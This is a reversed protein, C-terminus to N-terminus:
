DLVLHLFTFNLGLANLKRKIKKFGISRFKNNILVTPYFITSGEAKTLIKKIKKLNSFDVDRNRFSYFNATLFDLYTALDEYIQGVENSKDIPNLKMGLKLEKNLSRTYILFDGMLRTLSNCRFKHWKNLFKDKILDNYKLKIISQASLFSKVQDLDVENGQKNSIERLKIDEAANPKAAKDYCYNCFCTISQSVEDFFPYQFNEFLLGKINEPNIKSIIQKIKFSFVQNNPCPWNKIFKNDHGILNFEKIEPYFEQLLKLDFVLFFNIDQNFIEKLYDMDSVYNFNPDFKLTVADIDKENLINLLMDFNKRNIYNIGIELKDHDIM